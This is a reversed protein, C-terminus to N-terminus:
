VSAKRIRGDDSLCLSRPRGARVSRSARILAQLIKAATLATRALRGRDSKRNVVERNVDRINNKSVHRPPPIASAVSKFDTTRLPTRTRSGGEAGYSFCYCVPM